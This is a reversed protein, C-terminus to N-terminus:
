GHEDGKKDTNMQTSDNKKLDMCFDLVAVPLIILAVAM